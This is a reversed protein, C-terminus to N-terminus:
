RATGSRNVTATYHLPKDAMFADNGILLTVPLTVANGPRLITANVLGYPAWADQWTGRSLSATFTCTDIRKNYTFQCTGNANVGRGRANLTFVVPANGVDVTVVTGLWNTCQSPQAVAKFTCRDLNTRAFDLTVQFNTVSMTCPVAVTLAANTTNQGDSIAVTVAFTGCNTFVHMPIPDTSGSGDGFNWLYTPADQNSNTSNVSFGVEEGALVLPLGNVTEVANTIVVQEALMPPEVGNGTQGAVAAEIVTFTQGAITVTGTLASSGTNAAVSYDVTGNGEGEGYGEPISIWGVNSTATWDCTSGATVSVSSSGGSSPYSASASSLSYSCAGGAETVTFTQGAITVTGTLASSGTNAAVSYDVTGNGEGEGYGEPISIWGVNSTATWDCTSGATVSVSSSGGSSTYSASASSLSYSCCTETTPGAINSDPSEGASNYAQLVYYYTVGCTTGTDTYSTVSGDVVAIQVFNNTDPTSREIQIGAANSSNNVWTLTVASAGTCCALWAFVLASVVTAFRGTPIWARPSSRGSARARLHTWKLSERRTYLLKQGTESKRVYQDVRM